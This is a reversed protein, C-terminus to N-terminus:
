FRHGCSRDHRHDRRGNWRRDYRHDRRSDWRRDYRHNWGYGWQPMGRRFFRNRKWHRKHRRDRDFRTDTDHRDHRGWRHLFRGFPRAYYRRHGNDNAYRTAYGTNYAPYWTGVHTTTDYANSYGPYFTVRGKQDALAPVALSLALGLTLVFIFPKM